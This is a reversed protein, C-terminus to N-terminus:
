LLWLYTSFPGNVMKRVTHRKNRFARYPLDVQTRKGVRRFFMTRDAAAALDRRDDEPYM